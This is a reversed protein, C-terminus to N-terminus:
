RTGWFVNLILLLVSDTIFFDQFVCRPNFKHLSQMDSSSEWAAALHHVWLFDGCLTFFHIVGYAGYVLTIGLFIFSRFTSSLVVHFTVYHSRTDLGAHFSSPLVGMRVVVFLQAFQFDAARRLDM